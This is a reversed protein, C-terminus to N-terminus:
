ARASALHTDIPCQRMYRACTGGAPINPFLFLDPNERPPEKRGSRAASAFFATLGSSGPDAAIRDTATNPLTLICHNEHYSDSGPGLTTGFIGCAAKHAAKIARGDKRRWDQAVSLKQGNALTFGSMDIAKGRGHESIRDGRVSDRPRCVYHGAVQLEVVENRGFAPQLGQKVWDKLASATACDITAPQSLRVGAIATVRVPQAM